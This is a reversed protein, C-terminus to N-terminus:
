LQEMVLAAEVQVAPDSNLSIPRSFAPSPALSLVQKPTPHVSNSLM